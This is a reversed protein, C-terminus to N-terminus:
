RAKHEASMRYVFRRLSSIYTQVTMRLAACCNVRGNEVCRLSTFFRFADCRCCDGM